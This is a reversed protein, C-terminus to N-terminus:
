TAEAPPPTDCPRRTASIVQRAREELRAARDKEWDAAQKNYLWERESTSLLAKRFATEGQHPDPVVVQLTSIGRTKIDAIKAESCPNTVQVEIWVTEIQGDQRRRTVSLDPRRGDSWTEVEVTDFVFRQSRVIQRTKGNELVEVPPTEIWGEQDLVAKALLHAVTEPGGGCGSAAGKRRDHRYHYARAEPRVGTVKGQCGPCILPGDDRAPKQDIRLLKGRQTLAYILNANESGFAAHTDATVIEGPSALPTRRRGQM